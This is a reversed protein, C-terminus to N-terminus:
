LDGGDRAVYWYRTVVREMGEENGSTGWRFKGGVSICITIIQLIMLPM